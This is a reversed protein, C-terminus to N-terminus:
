RADGWPDKPAAPTSTPETLGPCRRARFRVLEERRRFHYEADTYEERGAHEVQKDLHWAILADLECTDININV